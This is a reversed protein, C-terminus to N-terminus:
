ENLKLDMKVSNATRSNKSLFKTLKIMRYLKMLKYLKTIRPFKALANLNAVKNIAKSSAKVMITDLPLVSLTDMWFWFKLYEKAILKIDYVNCGEKSDYYSTFFTLLLDILFCTDQFTDWIFFGRSDETWFSLRIPVFIAVYLILVM